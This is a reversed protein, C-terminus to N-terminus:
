LPHIPPPIRPVVVGFSQTVPIAAQYVGNAAQSATITCAGFGVFKATSGSVTCVAQTSSTFTVPLGSISSANLTLSGGMLQTPISPFTITPMGVLFGYAQVTGTLPSGPQTSAAQQGDVAYAYLIHFGPQLTVTKGTISSNQDTSGTWTNQLTDIQFYVRDSSTASSGEVQFQFTPSLLLTQNGALPAIETTLPLPQPPRDEILSLTNDANAALVAGTMPNVTM